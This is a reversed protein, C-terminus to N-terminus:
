SAKRKLWGGGFVFAFPRGVADSGLVALIAVDLLVCILLQVGEPGPLPRLNRLLRIAWPHLLYVSMTNRGVVSLPGLGRNAVVVFLFTCWLAGGCQVFARWGADSPSAYAVDRYLADSPAFGVLVEVAVFVAVCGLTALRLKRLATADLAGLRESLHVRGCFWGACFFPFLVVVRSLDLCEGVWPVFGVLLSLAFAVCVTLVQMRMGKVQELAPISCYWFVCALLYWLTWQPYLLTFGAFWACGAVFNRWATALVQFVVYPLLLGACIKKPRFRAFYGTTFVFVPMHFVYTAQYLARTATGRPNVLEIALHCFVVLFILLCKLNDLRADRRMVM